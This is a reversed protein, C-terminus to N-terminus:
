FLSKINELLGFFVGANIVELLLRTTLVHVVEFDLCLVRRKLHLAFRKLCQFVSEATHFLLILILREM